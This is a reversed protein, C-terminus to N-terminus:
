TEQLFLSTQDITLTMIKAKLMKMPFSGSSAAVNFFEKLLPVLIDQFTRYYEASLGDVGPLKNLALLSIVKCIEESTFPTSIREMKSHNLAPLKVLDM